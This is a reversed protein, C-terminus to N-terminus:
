GVVSIHLSAEEHNALRDLVGPIERPIGAGMLVYDVDALMAGYLSYLNPLQISELYNIGVLGNHGEKALFVEVFNAVVTLEQLARVPKLTFMPARKFAEEESKGGQVFFKDRVKQAIEPIPFHEMARRHHGGSDGLQLRRALIEDLGTGSVVGLQGMQAVVKALSWISVGAGMGGQIILPYAM